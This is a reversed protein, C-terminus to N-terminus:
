KIPEKLNKQKLYINQEYIFYDTEKKGENRLTRM